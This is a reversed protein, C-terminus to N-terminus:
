FRLIIIVFTLRFDTTIAGIIALLTLYALIVRFSYFFDQCNTRTKLSPRKRSTMAKYQCSNGPQLFIM